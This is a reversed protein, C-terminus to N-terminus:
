GRSQAACAGPAAAADLAHVAASTRPATVVLLRAGDATLLVARAQGGLNRVEHVDIRRSQRVREALPARNLRVFLWVLLLVGVFAAITLLRDPSLVDM